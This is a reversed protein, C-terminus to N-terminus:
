SQNNSHWGNPDVFLEKFYVFRLKRHPDRVVM